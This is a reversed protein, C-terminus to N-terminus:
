QLDLITRFISFEGKGVDDLLVMLSEAVRGEDEDDWGLVRKSPEPRLRDYLQRHKRAVKMWSTDQALKRIGTKVLAALAGNHISSHVKEALQVANGYDYSLDPAIDFLEVLRPVKSYVIPKGAGAALHLMGCCSHQHVGGEVPYSMVVADALGLLAAIERLSLSRSTFTFRSGLGEPLRETEEVWDDLGQDPEAGAQSAGAVIFCYSDDKDTLSVAADILQDFGQDSGRLGFCVVVHADAAIHLGLAKM